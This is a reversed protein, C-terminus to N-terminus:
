CLKWFVLESTTMCLNKSGELLAVDFGRFGVAPEVFGAPFARGCGAEM